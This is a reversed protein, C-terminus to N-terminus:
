AGCYIKRMDLGSGSELFYSKRLTFIGIPIINIVNVVLVPIGDANLITETAIVGDITGTQLCLEILVPRM